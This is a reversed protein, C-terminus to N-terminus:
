KIDNILYDNKRQNNYYKIPKMSNLSEWVLLKYTRFNEKKMRLMFIDKSIYYKQTILNTLIGNNYEAFVCYPENKSIDIRFRVEYLKDESCLDINSVYYSVNVLMSNVINDARILGYGFFLDKGDEGLDEANDSLLKFIEQLTLQPNIELMNAIIGCVYPSSFSTGSNFSYNNNGSIIKINDGPACIFVSDNINSFLSHNKQSTISGVGIVNDYAAPYNYKESGDNGVAAVIVVGKSVAYEIVTQLTISNLTGCSINIIDCDFSDVAAVIAKSLRSTTGGITKGSEDIDIFKLPVIQSKHAAGIVDRNAYEAAAVGCVATGHGINDKTDYVNDVFSAGDQLNNRLATHENCGSDIVAIRVGNGYAGLDWMRKVGTMKYTDDSIITSYNYTDFLEVANDPEIYEVDDININSIDSITYIKLEPILPKLYGKNKSMLTMNNSNVKVIYETDEGYATLYMATTFILITTIFIIQKLM